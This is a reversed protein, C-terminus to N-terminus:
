GEPPVWGLPTDGNVECMWPRKKGAENEWPKSRVVYQARFLDQCYPFYRLFTQIWNAGIYLMRELEDVSPTPQVTVQLVDM